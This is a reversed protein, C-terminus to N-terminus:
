AREEAPLPPPAPQGLAAAALDVLAQWELNKGTGVGRGLALVAEAAQRDLQTLTALSRQRARGRGDPIRPPFLIWAVNERLLEWRGDGEFGVLPFWVPTPPREHMASVGDADISILCKARSLFPLEGSYPTSITAGCVFAGGTGELPVAGGRLARPGELLHGLSGVGDPEGRQEVHYRARWEGDGVIVEHSGPEGPLQLRDGSGVRGIEVGDVLVPLYGALEDLEGTALQPGAGSLYVRPELPLGGALAFPAQQALAAAREVEPLDPLPVDRLLRWGEPLLTGTAFTRQEFRDALAADRTLVWVSEANPQEVLELGDDGLEFLAIDGFGPVRVAGEAAAPSGLVLGNSLRDLEQWPLEVAGGPELTLEGDALAFKVPASNGAALHLRPPYPLLRLRAPWLRGGADSSVISGDWAARASRVAARVRESMAPEEVLELAHRTLSRRGPWRRLRLLPDYGDGSSRMRASFFESLIERDRKRFVTQSVFLGVYPPRPDDPVVLRGRLGGLDRELWEGLLAFARPLADMNPLAGSGSLGLLERLHVYYASTSHSEDPAMRSAAVVCLCILALFRPTDRPTPGQSFASTAGRIGNFGAIQGVGFHVRVDMALQTAARDSNMDLQAAVARLAEDDCALLVGDGPEPALPLLQELLTANWRDIGDAATKTVNGAGTRTAM